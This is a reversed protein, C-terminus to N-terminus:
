EESVLHAEYWAVPGELPQHPNINLYTKGDTTKSSSVAFANSGAAKFSELTKNNGKFLSGLERDAGSIVCLSFTISTMYDKTTIPFSKKVLIETPHNKAYANIGQVYGSILKKFDESLDTDYKENVIERCRLLQVAYDAAAGDKGKLKGLMGKGILMTLQMTKFDDEANAYALGYAVEADTKAFIHPVGWQDRVINIKEPNIQAFSALSILFCFLLKM